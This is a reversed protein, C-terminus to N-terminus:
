QKDPSSARSYSNTVLGVVFYQYSIFNFLVFSFTGIGKQRLVDNSTYIEVTGFYCFRHASTASDSLLAAARPELMQLCLRLLELM